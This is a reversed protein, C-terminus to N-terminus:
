HHTTCHHASDDGLLSVRRKFRGAARPRDARETGHAQTPKEGSEETTVAPESSPGLCWDSSPPFKGSLADHRLSRQLSNTLARQKKDVKQGAAQTVKWGLLREERQGRAQKQPSTDKDRIVTPKNGALGGSQGWSSPSRRGSGAKETKRKREEEREKETIRQPMASLPPIISSPRSMRHTPHTGWLSKIRAKARGWGALLHVNIPLSNFPPPPPILLREAGSYPSWIHPTSHSMEWILRWRGLPMLSCTLM